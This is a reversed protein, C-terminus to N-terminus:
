TVDMNGRMSSHQTPLLMVGRWGVKGDGHDKDGEFSCGDEGM